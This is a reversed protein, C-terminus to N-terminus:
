LFVSSCVAMHTHTVAHTYSQPSIQLQTHRHMSTGPTQPLGPRRQHAQRGVPNLVAPWCPEPCCPIPPPHERTLEGWLGLGQGPVNGSEWEQSPVYRGSAGRRGSSDLERTKPQLASGPWSLSCGPLWVRPASHSPSMGAGLTDAVPSGGPTILPAM